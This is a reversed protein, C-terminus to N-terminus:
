IAIIGNQILYQLAKIFDSDSTQGESWFKATNKIWDPIKKSTTEKQTQPVKIIEKKILYQIGKTFDSDTIKGTSWWKANTKIWDPIAVNQASISDLSVIRIQSSKAGSIVSKLM